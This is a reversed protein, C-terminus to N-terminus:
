IKLYKQIKSKYKLKQNWNLNKNYLLYNKFIIKIKIFLNEFYKNQSLDFLMHM